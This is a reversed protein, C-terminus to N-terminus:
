MCAKGHESHKKYNLSGGSDGFSNMEGSIGFIHTFIDTYIGHDQFHTQSLCFNDPSSLHHVFDVDLSVVTFDRVISVRLGNLFRRCFLVSRVM